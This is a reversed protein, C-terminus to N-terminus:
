SSTVTTLAPITLPPNSVPVSKPQVGEPAEADTVVAPDCEPAWAARSPLEAAVLPSLVM